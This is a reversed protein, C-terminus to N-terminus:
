LIKGYIHVLVAFIECIECDAHIHVMHPFIQGCIVGQHVSGCVFIHFEIGIECHSIKDFQLTVTRGLFNRALSQIFHWLVYRHVWEILLQVFECVALYQGMHM